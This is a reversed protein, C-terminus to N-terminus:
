PQIGLVSLATRCVEFGTHYQLCTYFDDIASQREGLQLKAMGRWYYSEELAPTDDRVMDISNFTTKNIVDGYRGTYYYAFFPGTQYWLIRYPRISMSQPLSDYLAFATDYARAAGAYDRLSVLNGPNNLEELVGQMRRLIRQSRRERQAAPDQVIHVHKDGAVFDGGGTNIDGEVYVGTTHVAREQSESTMPQEHRDKWM